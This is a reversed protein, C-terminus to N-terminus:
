IGQFSFWSSLFQSFNLQGTVSLVGGIVLLLALVIRVPRVRVREGQGAGQGTGQEVGALAVKDRVLKITYFVIVLLALAFFVVAFVTRALAPYEQEWNELRYAASFLVINLKQLRGFLILAGISILLVLALRFGTM